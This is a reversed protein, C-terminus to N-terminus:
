TFRRLGMLARSCISFVFPLCSSMIQYMFGTESTFYPLVWSLQFTGAHLQLATLMFGFTFVFWLGVINLELRSLTSTFDRLRYM